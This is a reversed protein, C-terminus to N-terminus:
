SKLYKLYAGGKYASWLNLKGAKFMQVMFRVAKDPNNVVDDVSVFSTGKGIQYYDNIQCIGWDTSTVVGKSNRNKNVAKNNFGSEAQIVACILNKNGLSLGEEDCIVRVSHKSNALTDWLYKSETTMEPKKKVVEELEKQRLGVIEFLKNILNVLWNQQDTPKTFFYVKGYQIDHDLTLVKLHPEYTDFVYIGTEDAKYIHTWHGNISGPPSYYLGKDNRFWGSVSCCVTGKTLAEKILSMRTQLDPKSTWLWQHGLQRKNLWKLGKIRLELSNPRPAMFEPLSPSAAPLDIEYALGSGRITTAILHPDAGPPTVKAENYMFRDSYNNFEGYLFKELTEIANLSGFVSCGYTEFTTEFQTEFEPLFETWDGSPNIVPLSIGVSGFVHNDVTIKPEIFGIKM